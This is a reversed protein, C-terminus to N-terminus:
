SDPRIFGEPSENGARDIFSDGDGGFPADNEEEGRMRDPGPPPAARRRIPKERLEEENGVWRVTQEVLDGLGVRWPEEAIRSRV